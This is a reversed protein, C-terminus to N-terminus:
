FDFSVEFDAGHFMLDGQLPAANAGSSTANQVDLYRILQNQKWWMQAEYAAKLHYRVLRAGYLFSDSFRFGLAMQGQPRFSWYESKLRISQKELAGALNQFLDTESRKVDFRSALFAGSLDLTLAWHKGISWQFGSGFLLGLNNSSSYMELESSLVTVQNGAGFLILNGQSYDVQVRQHLWASRIGFSPSLQFCAAIKCPRSLKLDLFSSHLRWENKALTFRAGNNNNSFASPYTWVAIMGPGPVGAPDFNLSGSSNRETRYFTYLASLTWSDYPLFGGLGLRFGPEFKTDPELSTLEQNTQTGSNQYAYELGEERADWVLFDLNFFIKNKPAEERKPPLPNAALAPIAAILLLIRKKLTL